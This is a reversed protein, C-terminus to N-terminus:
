IGQGISVNTKVTNLLNDIASASSLIVNITDAATCSLETKFKYGIQTPTIVPATYKTVGNQNVVIALGSPPNEAGDVQVNYLGDSPITFTMTGLGVNVYTQNLTLINSM